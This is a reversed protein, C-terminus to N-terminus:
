MDQDIHKISYLTLYLYYMVHDIETEHLAGAVSHTHTNDSILKTHSQSTIIILLNINIPKKLQFIKNHYISLFVICFIYM